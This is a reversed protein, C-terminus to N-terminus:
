FNTLIVYELSQSTKLYIICSSLAMSNWLYDMPLSLKISIPTSYMSLSLSLSLSLMFCHCAVKLSVAVRRKAYQETVFPDLKRALRIADREPLEGKDAKCSWLQKLWSYM